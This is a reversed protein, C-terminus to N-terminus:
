RRSIEIDDYRYIDIFEEYSSGYWNKWTNKKGENYIVELGKVLEKLGEKIDKKEVTWLTMRAIEIIQSYEIYESDTIILRCLPVIDETSLEIAGRKIGDEIDDFLGVDGDQIAQYMQEIFEKM